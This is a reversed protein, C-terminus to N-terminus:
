ELRGGEFITQKVSKETAEGRLRPSAPATVKQESQEEKEEEQTPQGESDKKVQGEFVEHSM